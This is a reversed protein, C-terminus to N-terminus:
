QEEMDVLNGGDLKRVKLEAQDLLSACRKTLEQGREFLKMTEQLPHEDSELNEVLAILEDFAEEYSLEEIDISENKKNM